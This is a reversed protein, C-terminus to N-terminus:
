EHLAKIREILADYEQPYLVRISEMHEDLIKMLDTVNAGVAAALFESPPKKASGTRRKLENRVTYLCSLKQCVDYTTESESELAEIEDDIIGLDLM